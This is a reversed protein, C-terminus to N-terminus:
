NRRAYNVFINATLRGARPDPALAVDPAIRGSHLLHSRYIALRDFRAEVAGIQEYDRTNGNIYSPPGEAEASRADDYAGVREPSIREFGTSRQRYFATGGYEDGCLYHLFAFQLPDPSDYHPVRQSPALQHPPLTVISFNCEARALVVGKLGFAQEVVPSFARVLAGVYNLPAPARIGPYGGGARGAPAFSVERAAYDVLSAARRMVGDIVLLKEGEDGMAILSVRPSPNLGFDYDGASM